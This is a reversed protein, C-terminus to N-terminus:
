GTIPRGRKRQKTTIHGFFIGSGRTVGIRPRDTTLMVAMQEAKTTQGHHAGTLITGFRSVM